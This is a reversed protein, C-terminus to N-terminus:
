ETDDGDRELRVGPEIVADSQRERNREVVRGWEALGERVTDADFGITEGVAIIDRPARIQLHSSPSASVVFPAGADEILERLKRLEKIARVRSGGSARLVPGFDFEVRVGNDAAANALVHNFDGDERMPHALVDVSPQEVAFRNIRRNGGHVVVVTRDSRYNGVFGSARSPDDARVEVGVAIDVGYADSIAEADYDAQEDGHNRVVIGDYESDAATLAHRAVTSDGDPHAYVAEYM